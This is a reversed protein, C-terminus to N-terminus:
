WSGRFRRYFVYSAKLPPFYLLPFSREARVVIIIYISFTNDSFVIYSWSVFRILTYCFRYLTLARDSFVLPIHVGQVPVPATPSLGYSRVFSVATLGQRLIPSLLLIPRLLPPVPPRSSYQVQEPYPCTSPKQALPLSSGPEIFHVINRTYRLEELKILFM